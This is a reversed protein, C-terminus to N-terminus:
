RLRSPGFRLVFRMAKDEPVIRTENDTDHCNPLALREGELDFAECAVCKGQM